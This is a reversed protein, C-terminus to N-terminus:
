QGVKFIVLDKKDKMDNFTPNIQDGKPSLIIKDEKIELEKLLSKIVNAKKQSDSFNMEMAQDKTIKKSQEKIEYSYVDIEIPTEPHEKIFKALDYVIFKSLETLLIKTELKQFTIKSSNVKETLEKQLTVTPINVPKAAETTESVSKETEYSANSRKQNTTPSSMTNAVNTSFFKNQIIMIIIALVIAWVSKVLIDTFSVNGKQHSNLSKDINAMANSLLQKVDDNDNKNQM